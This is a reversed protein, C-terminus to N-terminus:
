EHRRAAECSENIRQVRRTRWQDRSVYRISWTVMVTSSSWRTGTAVWFSRYVSRTACAFLRINRNDLVIFCNTYWYIQLSFIVLLEAVHRDRTATVHYCSQKCSTHVCWWVDSQQWPFVGKYSRRESSRSVCKIDAWKEDTVRVM